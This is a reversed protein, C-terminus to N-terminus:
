DNCIELKTHALQRGTIANLRARWDGHQHNEPHNQVAIGSQRPAYDPRRIEAITHKLEENHDSTILM